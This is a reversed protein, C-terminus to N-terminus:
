LFFLLSIHKPPFSTFPFLIILFLGLQNVSQVLIYDSVPRSIKGALNFSKVIDETFEADLAYLGQVPFKYILKQTKYVANRLLIGQYEFYVSRLKCFLLFFHNRLGDNRIGIVQQPFCLRFVTMVPFHEPPHNCSRYPRSYQQTDESMKNIVDGKLKEIHQEPEKGIGQDPIQEYFESIIFVLLDPSAPYGTHLHFKHLRLVFHFLLLFMYQYCRGGGRIGPGKGVKEDAVNGCVGLVDGMSFDLHPHANSGEPFVTENGARSRVGPLLPHCVNQGLHTIVSDCVDPLGNIGLSGNHPETHGIDHFVFVEGKAHHAINQYIRLAPPAAQAIGKELRGDAPQTGLSNLIDIQFGSFIVVIGVTEEFLAPEDM